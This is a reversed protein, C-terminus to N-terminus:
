EVGEGEIVAGVVGIGEVACVVWGGAGKGVTVGVVKGDGEGEAIGVGDGAATGAGIAAAEVLMSGKRNMKAAMATAM